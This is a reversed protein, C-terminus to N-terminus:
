LTMRDTFRFILFRVRTYILRLPLVEERKEGETSKADGRASVKGEERQAKAEKCRQTLKGGWEEPVPLTPPAPEEASCNAATKANGPAAAVANLRWPTQDNACEGRRPAQM